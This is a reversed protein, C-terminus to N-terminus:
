LTKEELLNYKKPRYFAGGQLRVKTLRSRQYGLRSKRPFAIVFNVRSLLLDTGFSLLGDRFLLIRRGRVFNKRPVGSFEAPVISNEDPVVWNEGPVVGLRMPVVFTPRLCCFNEGSCCFERGSCCM